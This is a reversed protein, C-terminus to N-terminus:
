DDDAPLAEADADASSRGGNKGARLRLFSVGGTAVAVFAGLLILWLGIGTKQFFFIVVMVMGCGVILIGLVAAIPGSYRIGAIAVGTLAIGFGPILLLLWRQTEAGILALTVPDDAMVLEIGSVSSNEGLNLWPLFFGIILLLGAAGLFLRLVVHPYGPKPEESQKKKSEKPARELEADDDKM